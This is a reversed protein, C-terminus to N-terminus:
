SFKHASRAFFIIAQGIRFHKRRGQDHRWTASTVAASATLITDTVFRTSRAGIAEWTTAPVARVPM